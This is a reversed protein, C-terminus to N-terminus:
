SYPLSAHNDLINDYNNNGDAWTIILTGPTSEDLKCIKWVPSGTASGIVAVGYYAIGGGVDIYQKAYDISEVAVSDISADLDRIDLDTAEVTVPGAITDKLGPNINV